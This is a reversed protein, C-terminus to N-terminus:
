LPFIALIEDASSFCEGDGAFKQKPRYKLHAYTELISQEWDWVAAANQSTHLALVEYQYGALLRFSYREKVSRYTIGVKYFQEGEAFMRLLYLLARRGNARNSWEKGAHQAQTISGCAPCGDGIMHGAPKQEFPGHKRCIITVKKSNVTYNALSYDYRSGHVAQSKALFQGQDLRKARGTAVRGCAPCGQGHLHNIPKQSFGGHIPCGITVKRQTDVYELRSYDYKNGHVEHAKILFQQQSHRTAAATVLFGCKPCGIGMLHSSPDQNFVGHIACIISIKNGSGQYNVLSYNYLNGHMKHALAIFKEQSYIRSSAKSAQGCFYCGKGKLHGNPRQEFVGHAPCKICIKQASGMYVARSYDYRDGHAARARAIFEEQTLKSAM